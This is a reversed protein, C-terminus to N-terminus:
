SNIRRCHCLQTNEGYQVGHWQTNDPGTFWADYRSGAMNHAGKKVYANFKLSGPWNSVQWRSVQKGNLGNFGNPATDKENALSLYLTIKGTDRMQQADRDACCQWCIKRGDPTEGYGTTHEDHPSPSHGCDLKTESDLTKM